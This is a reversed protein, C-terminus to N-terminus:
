DNKIVEWKISIVGESLSGLKEFVTPSFDFERGKIYPGRDNCVAIVENSGRSFKVKTGFPMTKHAFTLKNCDYTEGSATKRGEFGECYYSAKAANIKITPTPTPTSTPTPVVSQTIESHGYFVVSSNHWRYALFLILAIALLSFVIKKKTM